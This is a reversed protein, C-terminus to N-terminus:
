KVSAVELPLEIQEIYRTESEKLGHQELIEKVEEETAQHLAERNAVGADGHYFGQCVCKCRTGRANHCRSSCTRKRSM